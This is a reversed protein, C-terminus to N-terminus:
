SDNVISFIVDSAAALDQVLTADAVSGVVTKLGLSELKQAKEPSRVLATIAFSATNPHKLLRDLVSGGIYGINANHSRAPFAPSLVIGTAGTLLIQIKSTSM